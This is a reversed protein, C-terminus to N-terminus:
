GATASAVRKSGFQVTVRTWQMHQFEILAELKRCVLAGFGLCGESGHIGFRFGNASLDDRGFTGKIKSEVRPMEVFSIKRATAIFKAAQIATVACRVELGM